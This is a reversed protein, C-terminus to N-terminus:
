LQVEDDPIYGPPHPMKERNGGHLIAWTAFIVPILWLLHIM